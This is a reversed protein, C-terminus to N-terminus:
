VTDWFLMGSMEVTGQFDVVLNQYNKTPINAVCSAM